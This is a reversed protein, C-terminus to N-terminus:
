GSLLKKVSFSCSGDFVLFFQIIQRIPVSIYRVIKLIVFMKIGIIKSYDHLWKCCFVRIRISIYSRKEFLPNLVNIKLKTYKEIILIHTVVTMSNMLLLFCDNKLRMSLKLCSELYIQSYKESWYAQFSPMKQFNRTFIEWSVFFIYGLFILM